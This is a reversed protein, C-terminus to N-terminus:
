FNPTNQTVVTTLGKWPFREEEGNNQYSKESAKHYNIGFENRLRYKVSIYMNTHVIEEIYHTHRTEYIFNNLQKELDEAVGSGGYKCHIFKFQPIGVMDKKVESLILTCYQTSAGNNSISVCKVVNTIVREIEDDL